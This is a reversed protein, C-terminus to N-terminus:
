PMSITHSQWRMAGGVTLKEDFIGIPRYDTALKLTHRPQHTYLETGDKDKSIRFTYGASVNWRDNIAGAAELEFGRTTTGDISRYISRQLDDDWRVYEAVDKQDTQFTAASVYLAGNLPDGKVGLEYNWGYTPDLYNGEEDQSLQPQYISSVSGYATWVPNLDYTFGLYPTIEGDYSYEFPLSNNGTEKGKWWNARAGALVRLQDTAHFQLTGYLAYQRTESEAWYTRTPSWTPEAPGGNWDFISGVPPLPRLAGYGDHHMKGDSAIAGVVFQHERGMAQFDGNLVANLSNQRFYGVYRTASSLSLGEGTARDPAGVFWALQTDLENR